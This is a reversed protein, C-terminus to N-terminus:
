TSDGFWQIDSVGRDDVYIDATPKGLFLADYKVGWESMQRETVTRWDIGTTSGRATLLYITHGAERLANVKAIRAPFPQAAEYSGHMNSCLTGDIDFCYIM